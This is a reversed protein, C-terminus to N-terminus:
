LIFFRQAWEAAPFSPVKLLNVTMLCCVTNFISIIKLIPLLHCMEPEMQVPSGCIPLLFFSPDFKNFELCTIDIRNWRLAEHFPWACKEANQKEEFLFLPRKITALIQVQKREQAQPLGTQHRVFSHANTSAISRARKVPHLRVPLCLVRRQMVVTYIM